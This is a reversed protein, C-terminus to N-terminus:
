GNGRGRQNAGFWGQEDRLAVSRHVSVLVHDGPHVQPLNRVEPSVILTDLEGQDGRLLVTRSRLDVLEVIAKAEILDSIVVPQARLPAGHFSM